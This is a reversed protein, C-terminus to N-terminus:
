NHRQTQTYERLCSCPHNHSSSFPLSLFPLSVWPFILSWASMTFQSNRMGDPQSLMTHIISITAFCWWFTGYGWSLLGAFQSAFSVPQAAQATLFQGRDYAAFSGQDIAHGLILLAYAGQGFPGCLIMDQYVQELQPFSRDFLRTMFINGLTIALPLGLGVELYGVIIVPVQLRASLNAETCITGGGAASTLASILPLLVGPAIAKVGPPQIKVFVYPIVMVATVAMATNIWWLVYVVIGWEQGWRPALVFAVMQIITTCTISISALSSTEGIDTKLARAVHQPYLIIRLFYLFLCIVLLAMTYIWVVIAIISLGPFQYNLRYLSVSIVGTGQPILFWETSFNWLALSPPYTPPRTTEQKDAGDLGDQQEKITGGGPDDAM